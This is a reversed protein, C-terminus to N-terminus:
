REAPLLGSARLEGIIAAAYARAGARNPHAVSAYICPILEVPLNPEFCAEVRLDQMQDEPFLLLDFDFDGFFETSASMGWLYPSQAFAANETTFKPDVFSIREGAEAVARSVAAQLGNHANQLFVMSNEVLQAVLDEEVGQNLGQTSAYQRLGFVDSAPGVIPYYGTVIIRANSALAAVDQLLEGMAEDCFQMTVDALETPDIEADLITAVGVDNICGDMLILDMLEPRQILTAQVTISTEVKPVEGICNFLCIDDDEDPVIEAGSHAFRQTIVRLGTEREITDAVLTSFKDRERLGNGWVVSDGIVAMYFFGRALELHDSGLPTGDAATSDYIELVSFAGLASDPLLVGLRAARTGNVTSTEALWFVGQGNHLLSRVEANYPEPAQAVDIEAPSRPAPVKFIPLSEAADRNRLQLRLQEPAGTAVVLFFGSGQPAQVDGDMRYAHIPKYVEQGGAAPLELKDTDLLFVRSFGRSAFDTGPPACSVLWPVAVAALSLVTAFRVPQKTM